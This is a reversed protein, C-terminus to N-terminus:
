PQFFESLATQGVFVSFARAVEFKNIKSYSHPVVHLVTWNKMKIKYVIEFNQSKVWLFAFKPCLETKEMNKHRKLHTKSSIPKKLHKFTM